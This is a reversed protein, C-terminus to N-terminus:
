SITTKVYSDYSLSYKSSQYRTLSISELVDKSVNERYGAKRILSHVADKQSWRQESAVEPLYTANFKRGNVHFEIIIGHIGVTWDYCHDGREYQVLLSVSLEITPLESLELPRFRGDKFASSVTYSQLSSALHADSLTGICGRLDKEGVSLISGDFPTATIIHKIIITNHFLFFSFVSSPGNAVM